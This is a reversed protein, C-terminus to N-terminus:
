GPESTLEGLDWNEEMGDLKWYEELRKAIFLFATVRLLVDTLGAHDSIAVRHTQAFTVEQSVPGDSLGTSDALGRRYTLALSVADVLGAADSQQVHRTIVLSV